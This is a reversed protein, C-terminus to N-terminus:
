DARVAGGLAACVQAPSPAQFAPLALVAHSGDAFWLEVRRRLLGRPRPRVQAIARLPVEGVVGVAGYARLVEGPALAEAVAAETDPDTPM